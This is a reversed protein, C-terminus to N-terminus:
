MAFHRWERVNMGRSFNGITLALANGQCTFTYNLKTILNKSLNDFALNARDGLPRHGQNLLAGYRNAIYALILGVISGVLLAQIPKNNKTNM